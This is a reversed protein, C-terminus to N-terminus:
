EVLKELGVRRIIVEVVEPSAPAIAALELWQADCGAPVVLPEPASMAIQALRSGRNCRLNWFITDGPPGGDFSTSLAYRGPPLTLLQRAFTAQDRGFYVVELGGGDSLTAVGAPNNLVTWGFAGKPTGSFTPDALLGRDSSDNWNAWLRRARVVQGDAVLAGIAVEKWREDRMKKGSRPQLKLVLAINSADSALARLLPARLRPRRELLEVIVEEGGPQRAMMALAPVLSRHSEPQLRAAAELEVLSQVTDGQRAYAQALVLRAPGSRPDRRRAAEYLSVARDIDGDLEALAGEILFPMASLPQRQAIRKVSTRAQRDLPRGAEAARAAALMVQETAPKPHGVALLHLMALPHDPPARGIASRGALLIVLATAAIVTANRIAGSRKSM